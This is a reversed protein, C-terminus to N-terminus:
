DKFKETAKLKEYEKTVLSKGSSYVSFYNLIIAIGWGFMPFFPWPFNHRTNFNSYGNNCNTVFYIVWLFSIVVVYVLLSKKFKAREIAKQM